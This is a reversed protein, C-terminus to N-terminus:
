IILNIYLVVNKAYFLSTAIYKINLYYVKNMFIYYNLQLKKNLCKGFCIRKFLFLSYCTTLLVNWVSLAPFLFDIDALSLISFLEGYFGILGPLSLNGLLFLFFFTSSVPYHHFLTQLTFLNRSHTTDYLIGLAMFLASSSLGHNVSTIICGMLGQIHLTYLSAIALNIHTVSSYAIIKKVDYNKLCNM